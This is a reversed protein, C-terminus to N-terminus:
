AVAEEEPIGHLRSLFAFSLFPGFFFLLLTGFLGMLGQIMKKMQEPPPGSKAAESGAKAAEAAEKGGGGGSPMMGSLAFFAMFIMQFVVLVLVVLFFYLICWLGITAADALSPFRREIKMFRSASLYGSIFFSILIAPGMITDMGPVSLKRLFFTIFFIGIIMLFTLGVYLGAYGRLGKYHQLANM